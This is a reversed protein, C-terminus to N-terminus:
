AISMAPNRRRPKGRERRLMLSGMVSAAALILCSAPEPIVVANIGFLVGAAGEFLIHESIGTANVNTIEVLGAQYADAFSDPSEFASSMVSYPATLTFDFGAYGDSVYDVVHGDQVALGLLTQSNSSSDDTQIVNFVQAGFAATIAPDLQFWPNLPTAIPAVFADGDAFRPATLRGHVFPMPDDSLLTAGNAAQYEVFEHNKQWSLIAAWTTDSEWAHFRGDAVATPFLARWEPLDQGCAHLIVEQYAPFKEKIGFANPSFEDGMTKPNFAVRVGALYKSDKKDGDTLGHGVFVFAQLGQQRIIQGMKTDTVAYDQLPTFGATTLQASATDAASIALSTTRGFLDYWPGATGGVTVAATDAAKSLSAAMTISVCALALSRRLSKSV